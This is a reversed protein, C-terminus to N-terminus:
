KGDLLIWRWGECLQGRLTKIGVPNRQTRALYGQDPWPLRPDTPNSLPFVIHLSFITVLFLFRPFRHSINSFLDIIIYSYKKTRKSIKTMHSRSTSSVEFKTDTSNNPNICKKIKQISDKQQIYGCAKSKMDRSERSFFWRWGSKAKNVQIQWPNKKSGVTLLEWTQICDFLIIWLLRGCGYAIEHFGPIVLGMPIKRIGLRRIGNRIASSVQRHSLGPAPPFGNFTVHSGSSTEPPFCPFFYPFVSSFCVHLCPFFHLLCSFVYALVDCPFVHSVCFLWTNPEMVLWPHVKRCNRSAKMPRMFPPIKSCDKQIVAPNKSSQSAMCFGLTSIQHINNRSSHLCTQIKM